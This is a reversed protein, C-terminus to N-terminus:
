ETSLIAPHRAWSVVVQRRNCWYNRPTGRVMGWRTPQYPRLLAPSCFVGSLLLHRNIACVASQDAM